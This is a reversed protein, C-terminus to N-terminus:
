KKADRACRFGITPYARDHPYAERNWTRLSEAGSESSGGRVWTRKAFEIATVPWPADDPADTATWEAVNGSLHLIGEPAFPMVQDVAVVKAGDFIALTPSPELQGWPYKRRTGAGAAALEWEPDTPLRKKEFACFQAADDRKINTVPLKPEGELKGCKTCKALREYSVEYKDLVFSAVDVFSAPCAAKHQPDDVGCDPPGRHLKTGPICAESELLPGCKSMTTSSSPSPAASVSTSPVSVPSKLPRAPAVLPWVAFVGGGIAVGLALFITWRTAPSARTSPAVSSPPPPEPEKGHGTPKTGAPGTMAPQTPAVTFASEAKTAPASSLQPSPLTAAQPVTGATQTPPGQKVTAPAIEGTRAAEELARWFDQISAFRADARISLARQLVDDISPSLEPREARLNPRTPSMCTAWMVETLTEGAFPPKATLTAWVVAALAFQDARADVPGFEKGYQEPAAFGISLGTGTQTSTRIGHPSAWRALGFDLVKAVRARDIMVNSPKLDRHIVQQEHAHAIARAVPGLLALTDDLPLAGLRNIYTDLTEGEIWELALYPTGDDLHSADTISVIGPHRLKALVRAEQEFRTRAEPSSALIESRLVKIAVTVGLALAEAEYVLGFGGEAVFRRVAYRRDITTGVIGLPDRM